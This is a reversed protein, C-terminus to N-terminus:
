IDVLVNGAQWTRAERIRQDISRRRRVHTDILLFMIASVVGSYGAALLSPIVLNRFILPSEYKLEVFYESNGPDNPFSNWYGETDPVEQARDLLSSNDLYSAEWMAKCLDSKQSTFGSIDERIREYSTNPRPRIPDYITFWAADITGFGFKMQLYDIAKRVANGVIRHDNHEDANEAVEEPAHSYILLLDKSCQNLTVTENIEHALDIALHETFVNEIASLGKDPYLISHSPDFPDLYSMQKKGIVSADVVKDLRTKWDYALLSDYSHSYSGDIGCRKRALDESYFVRTFTEGDPAVWETGNVADKAVWNRSSDYDYEKEDAGGDTVVIWAIPNKGVYHKLLTGTVGVEIDDPHAGVCVVLVNESAGTVELRLAAFFFVWIGLAAAFKKFKM